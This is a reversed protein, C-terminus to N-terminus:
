AHGIHTIELEVPQNSDMNWISYESGMFQDGEVGIGDNILDKGLRLAEEPSDSEIVVDVPIQIYGTISWKAM